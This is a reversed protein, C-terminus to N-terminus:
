SMDDQLELFVGRVENSSPEAAVCLFAFGFEAVLGLAGVGADDPPDQDLEGHQAHCAGPLQRM